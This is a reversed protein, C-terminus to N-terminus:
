VTKPCGGSGGEPPPFFIDHKFQTLAVEAYVLLDTGVDFCDTYNVEGGAEKQTFFRIYPLPKYDKVAGIAAMRSLIERAFNWMELDVEGYTARLKGDGPDRWIHIVPPAEPAPNDTETEIRKRTKFDIVVAM